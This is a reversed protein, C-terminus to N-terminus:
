PISDSCVTRTKMRVGNGLVGRIAFTFPLTPPWLSGGEPRRAARSDITRSRSGSVAAQRGGGQGGQHGGPHDAM